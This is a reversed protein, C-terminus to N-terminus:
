IDILLTEQASGVQRHRTLLGPRDKSRLTAPCVAEAGATKAGPLSARIRRVSRQGHAQETEALMM